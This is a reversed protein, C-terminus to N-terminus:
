DNYKAHDTFMFKIDWAPSGSEREYRHTRPIVAGSLLLRKYKGKPFVGMHVTPMFASTGALSVLWGAASDEAVEKQFRDNTMGYDWPGIFSRRYPTSMGKYMDSRGQLYRLLDNAWGTSTTDLPSSVITEPALGARTLPVTGLAPASFQESYIGAALSLQHMRSLEDSEQARQRASVFVPVLLAMLVCLIAIVVCVEILSFGAMQPSTRSRNMREEANRTGWFDLRQRIPSPSGPALEPDVRGGGSPRHPLRVWALWNWYYNLSSESSKWQLPFIAPIM